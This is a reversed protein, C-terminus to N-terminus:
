LTLGGDREEDIQRNVVSTAPVWEYIVIKKILILSFSNIGSFEKKKRVQRSTKNPNKIIKKKKNPFSLSPQLFMRLININILKEICNPSLLGVIAIDATLM